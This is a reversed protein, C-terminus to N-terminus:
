LMVRRRSQFAEIPMVERSQAVASQERKPACMQAILFAKSRRLRFARRDVGEVQRRASEDEFAREATGTLFQITPHAAVGRGESSTPNLATPTAM